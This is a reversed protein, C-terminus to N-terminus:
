AEYVEDIDFTWEEENVEGPLAKGEANTCLTNLQAELRAEAHQEDSATVMATYSITKVVTYLVEFEPM